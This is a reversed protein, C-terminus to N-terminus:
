AVHSLFDGSPVSSVINPVLVCRSRRQVSESSLVTRCLSFIHGTGKKRGEIPLAAATCCGVACESQTGFQRTPCLLRVPSWLLCHRPRVTLRVNCYAVKTGTEGIGRQEESGPGGGRERRSEGGRKGKEGPRNVM